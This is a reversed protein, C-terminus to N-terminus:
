VLACANTTAGTTFVDDVLIIREGNLRADPRLTFARRVNAARQQRTLLTQTRTPVVRRLWTQNLPINTARSLHRALCEAQNFERERKKTAHLPVPVILNWQEQRLAPVAQRLFVDALFPEFWLARQYKYRHIADLIVGRAKVASRASVFHLELERCNACEFPTNFEGRYPLGCRQCFPPHIFRVKGWCSSCVFGERATAREEGCLQCAPPYVLALGADLWSKFNAM